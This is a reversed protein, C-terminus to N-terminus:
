FLMLGGDESYCLAVMKVTQGSSPPRINNQFTWHHEVAQV